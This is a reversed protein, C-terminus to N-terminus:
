NMHIQISDDIYVPRRECYNGENHVLEKWRPYISLTLSFSIIKLKNNRYVVKMKLIVYRM